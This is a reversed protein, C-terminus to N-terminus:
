KRINDNDISESKVKKVSSFGEILVKYLIVAPDKKLNNFITLVLEYVTSKSYDRKYENKLYTKFNSLVTAFKQSMTIDFYNDDPQNQYYEEITDIKEKLTINDM